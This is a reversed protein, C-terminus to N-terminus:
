HQTPCAPSMHAPQQGTEFSRSTSASNWEPEHRPKLATNALLGICIIKEKGCLKFKHELDTNPFGSSAWRETVVIDGPQVAMIDTSGGPSFPVVLNIPRIVSHSHASRSQFFFSV